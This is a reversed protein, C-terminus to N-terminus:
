DDLRRHNVGLADLRATHSDLRRRFDDYARRSQPTWVVESLACLRPFLMYEAMAGDAIYETWLQCQAGLVHEAEQSALAAPVPELAYAKELTILDSIALPETAPDGQYYNFYTWLTPAMVVDHGAQAAAIGGEMGRWSMVSANPSLGGELIEDWGILKRGHATVFEDMRGIFWSQLEEESSLGLEAMRAQAARSEVWEHKLAEDGGVHVYPGPFLEMIEALVHQMFTVTSEQPNLIHQSIDWMCRPQLLMPLNGLEPYASIAAQMHGPMDIEPVITVHRAAAYAVVERIEDQTYFGGHPVDDFRHPRQNHHGILTAARMSALATLRPYRKIEVRWGQDDTLHWHFTNLKHFAMLDILRLVFEKPLFHRSVDLMTGRWRFRPADEIRVCPIEWARGKQPASALIAPPLLQRLSQGAYFLGATTSAILSVAAPTVELRYGEASPITSDLVLRITNTHSAHGHSTDAQAEADQVPLPFGTAPRLQAALTEAEARAAAGAVLATTDALVFRGPQPQLHAPRPIISIQPEAM